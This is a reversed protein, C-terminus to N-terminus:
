NIFLDDPIIFSKDTSTVKKVDELLIINMNSLDFSTKSAVRNIQETLVKEFFNRVTRGNAFLADRHEYLHELYLRVEKIAKEELTYNANEVFQLFIAELDDPEYDEFHLYKNFRSKLGPNSNVFGEMENKYGAVIVIFEDRHDEMAKLITDIAEQGYDKDMGKKSLTYAEDIFLIGGLAENIKESTKIATQGIYGGVLDSRDVEILQGKKLIGIGKYVKALIRAVTTKGTGPNGSFVLHHSIPLPKLGLDQRQKQVKALNILDTVEKKVSDLGILQDLDKRPDYDNDQHYTEDKEIVKLLDDRKICSMDEVNLSTMYAIRNVQETIVKEFLNRVSRANAFNDDRNQYLHKLYDQLDKFANTELRYQNKNCLSEFIAELEKPQYDEFHIYNNFRSELGPNSEIFQKMENEYGAVIVVLDDRHDEMAKLITDIAEQGYDKESESKSLTYAEDIFLVGGIASEIKEATKIATQGIYGGVLDSRDVEILQGQNLLGIEKYINAIIRAVTTKGTGPNGSFVLHKSIPLPPFGKSERQKQIKAFNVLKTIEQKVTDLGVLAYLEDMSSSTPQIEKKITPNEKKNENSVIKKEESPKPTVKTEKKNFSNPVYGKEEILELVRQRRALINEKTLFPEENIASKNGKLTSQTIINQPMFALAEEIYNYAKSLNLTAENIYTGSLWYALHTRHAPLAIELGNKDFDKPNELHLHNIEQLIHHVTEIEKYTEWTSAAALNKAYYVVWALRSQLNNFPINKDIEISELSLQYGKMRGQYAQDDTICAMYEHVYYAKNRYLIDDNYTKLLHDFRQIAQEYTEKTKSATCMAVIDNNEKRCIPDNITLSLNANAKLQRYIEDKRNLLDQKTHLIDEKKGSWTNGQINQQNIHENTGLYDLAEHILAYAKPLNLTEKQIYKKAIRYALMAGVMPLAVTKNLVDKESPKYSYLSLAYRIADLGYEMESYGHHTSAIGFRRATIYITNKNADQETLRANIEIEYAQKAYEYAQKRVAYDNDNRVQISYERLHFALNYRLRSHNPFDKLVYELDLIVQNLVKLTSEKQYRHVADTIYQEINM